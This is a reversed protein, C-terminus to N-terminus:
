CFVFSVSIDYKDSLRELFRYLGPRILYKHEEVESDKVVIIKRAKKLLEKSQGETSDDLVHILTEDLDLLLSIKQSDAKNKIFTVRRRAIETTTPLQIQYVQMFNKVLDATCTSVYPKVDEPFVISGKSEFTSISADIKAESSLTSQLQSATCQELEQGIKGENSVFHESTASSFQSSVVKKQIKQAYKLPNISTFMSLSTRGFPNRIEHSLARSWPLTQALSNTEKNDM